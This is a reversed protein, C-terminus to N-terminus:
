QVEKEFLSKTLKELIPGFVDALAKRLDRVANEWREAKLREQENYEDLNM